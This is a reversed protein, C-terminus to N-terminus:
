LRITSFKEFAWLMIECKWIRITGNLISNYLEETFTEYAGNKSNLFFFKDDCGNKNVDFINYGQRQLNFKKLKYTGSNFTFNISSKKLLWFLSYTIYPIFQLFVNRSFSGTIDLKKVLRIFIPRAYSPLRDKIANGLKGIDVERNPRSKNFPEFNRINSFEIAACFSVWIYTLWRM